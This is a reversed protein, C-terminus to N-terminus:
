QWNSEPAPLDGITTLTLTSWYLSTLYQRTTTSFVSESANPYIWGGKPGEALVFGGTSWVSEFCHSLVYVYLSYIAYITWANYCFTVSFTRHIGVLMTCFLDTPRHVLYTLV